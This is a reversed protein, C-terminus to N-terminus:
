SHLVSAGSDFHSDEAKNCLLKCQLGISYYCTASGRRYGASAIFYVYLFYKLCTTTGPHIKNYAAYSLDTNELSKFDHM